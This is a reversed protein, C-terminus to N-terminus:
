PAPNHGDGSPDFVNQLNVGGLQTFAPSQNTNWIHENYIWVAGYEVNRTVTVADVSGDSNKRVRLAAGEQINPVVTTGGDEAAWRACSEGDMAPTQGAPWFVGRSNGGTNSQPASVSVSASGPDYALNYTDTAPEQTLVATSFSPDVNAWMPTCGAAALAVAVIGLM